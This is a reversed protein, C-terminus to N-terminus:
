TKSRSLFCTPEHDDVLGTAQMFAYAIVPGFFKFGRRKLDAALSTAEPSTTRPKWRPSHQPKGGVFRWVYKSFTGFEQRIALFVQANSIASVIKLRNRIIRTDSMLRAIDRSSFRAVQEADFGAFAQAYGARRKLITAWSLGAQASELLLFEFFIRDRKVPVSWETDHYREYLTHEAPVWHCRIKEATRVRSM